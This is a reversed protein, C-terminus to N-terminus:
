RKSNVNMTGSSVTDRSAGDRVLEVHGHTILAPQLQQRHGGLSHAAGCRSHAQDILEDRM